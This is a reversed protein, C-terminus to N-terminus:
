SSALSGPLGNTNDMLPFSPQPHPFHPCPDPSTFLQHLTCEELFSKLGRVLIHQRWLISYTLICSLLSFALLCSLFSPLFPPFLSPFFSLFSSIGNFDFSGNISNSLHPAFTSIGWIITWLCSCSWPCPTTRSRSPVWQSPDRRNNKANNMM